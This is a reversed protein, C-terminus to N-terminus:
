HWERTKMLDLELHLCDTFFTILSLYQTSNLPPKTHFPNVGIIWFDWVPYKRLQIIGLWTVGNVKCSDVHSCLHRDLLASVKQIM